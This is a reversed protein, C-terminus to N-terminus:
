CNPWRWAQHQTCPWSTRRRSVPVPVPVGAARLMRHRDALPKAGQHRLVKLYGHDEGNRALVVARRLPRYSRLDLETEDPERGPGLGFPTMRAPDLAFALGPLLPDAPHVWVSLADTGRRHFVAVRPTPHPIACSTICAHMPAPETVAHRPSGFVRGARRVELSYVGTAGAGPRHHVSVLEWSGLEWGAAALAHELLEGVVDSQLLAITEQERIIRVERASM